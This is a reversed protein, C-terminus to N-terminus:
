LAFGSEFDDGDVPEIDRFTSYHRTQLLGRLKLRFSDDSTAIFFGNDYGGQFDLPEPPTECLISPATLPFTEELVLPEQIMKPSYPLNDLSDDGSSERSVHCALLIFCLGGLKVGNNMVVM